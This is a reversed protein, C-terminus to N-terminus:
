ASLEQSTVPAPLPVATADAIRGLSTWTDDTLTIGESRLREATRAEPEGPVFIEATGPAAPVAKTEEILAEMRTEFEAPDAMAAIDVCILLHGVGSRGTPQYPGVVATGFASGTLVGALVDFMFSIAYGKHGAMPLILGEIARRPDNTPVGGADAAWGDPIAEGRERAHYIKGRAVATNAIDMVVTGHRGGPAAISWPNTGVSKERGGWPAMAPSANTALLAVCGQEAAKRTFYAATGFHGSNRVAVASIGHRRAREVGWTVARSTLVQGLGDCGDVVLVAGSDTVTVPAAVATTAGSALRDLYWPLRLMGHSPHGWLEATVLTDALLRADVAPVGHAEATAAAFNLLDASGVTHPM